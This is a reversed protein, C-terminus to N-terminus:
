IEARFFILSISLIRKNIVFPVDIILFCGTIAGVGIVIGLFIDLYEWVMGEDGVDCYSDFFFAVLVGGNTCCM